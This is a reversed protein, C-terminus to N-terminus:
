HDKCKMELFIQVCLARFISNADFKDYKDNKIIDKLKEINIYKLNDCEELWRFIADKNKKFFNYESTQFGIKDKRDLIYDPTIGRMSDRFLNKTDGKHSSYFYPSISLASAVFCNNLFPVRSEVSWFMSNRDGHRLLSQLGRMQLIDWINELYDKDIDHIDGYNFDSELKLNNSIFTKDFRGIAQYIYYRIFNMKSKSFLIQAHLNLKDLISFSEIYEKHGAYKNNKKNILLHPYGKYGCIVEDAGQGDLCVKYGQKSIEHYIKNQAIVSSSVFPHEQAQVTLILDDLTFEDEYIKYVELDLDKKLRDIYLEESTSKDSSIFSFCTIKDHPKLYRISSAISSSDIGGSLGITVPVHSVLSLEISKLFSERLLARSDSKSQTNHKQLRSFEKNPKNITLKHSKIDLEYLAGPICSYVNEYMTESSADYSGSFIYNQIQNTNHKSKKTMKIISDINSALFFGKESFSYYLPKIGYLDREFFIKERKADYISVAYMGEIESRIISKLTDKASIIKKFLDLAVFVDSNNSDYINYKDGLQLYNYIEGNYLGIYEDDNRVPQNYKESLGLISLRQHHLQIFKGSKSQILETGFADPGRKKLNTFDSLNYAPRDKTSSILFGCM